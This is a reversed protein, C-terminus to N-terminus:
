ELTRKMAEFDEKTIEGKAFRLKLIKLPENDTNRIESKILNQSAPLDKQAQVIVEYLKDAWERIAKGGLSSVGFRPEQPINNEDLYPIVIHHAKGSDHIMGSGLGFGTNGLLDGGGAIDKRRSEEEIRWRNIIVSNLPIVIEWTIAVNKDDKEFVLHTSTLYLTGSQFKSVYGGALYKKHGGHYEAHLAKLLINGFRIKVRLELFANIVEYNGLYFVLRQNKKASDLYTLHLCEKYWKSNKLSFKRESTDEFDKIDIDKIESLPITISYKGNNSYFSLRKIDDYNQVIIKGKTKPWNTYGTIYEV